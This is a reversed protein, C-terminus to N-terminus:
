PKSSLVGDRIKEPLELEESLRAILPSTPDLHFGEDFKVRGEPLDELEYHIPEFQWGNSNDSTCVFNAKADPSYGGLSDLGFDGLRISFVRGQLTM